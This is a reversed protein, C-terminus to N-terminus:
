SHKNKMSMASFSTNSNTCNGCIRDTSKQSDGNVAKRHSPGMYFVINFYRLAAVAGNNDEANRAMGGLSSGSSSAFRTRLMTLRFQANNDNALDIKVVNFSSFSSTETLYLRMDSLILPVGFNPGWTTIIQAAPGIAGVVSGFGPVIIAKAVGAVLLDGTAM